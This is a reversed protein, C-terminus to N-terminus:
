MTPIPKGCRTTSSLIPKWQPQRHNTPLTNAFSKYTGVKLLNVTVGVKDLADRYYNRYRGFGTMMVSGMPHLYIQNAHAALFYQRQDFSSGWAIVPKGSAKFRDIAAAV